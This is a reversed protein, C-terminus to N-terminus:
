NSYIPRGPGCGLHHNQSELTLNCTLLALWSNSHSTRTGQIDFITSSAVSTRKNLVCSLTQHRSPGGVQRQNYTVRHAIGPHSALIRHAINPHSARHWSAIRSTVDCGLMADQCLADCGLVACRMRADRM